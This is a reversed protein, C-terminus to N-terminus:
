RRRNDTGAKGWRRHVPNLYTAPLTGPLHSPVPVRDRGNDNGRTFSRLARENAAVINTIVHGDKRRLIRINGLRWQQLSGSCRMVKPNPVDAAIWAGYVRPGPLLQPILM